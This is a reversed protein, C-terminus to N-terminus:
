NVTLIVENFDKNDNEVSTKVKYDGSIAANM